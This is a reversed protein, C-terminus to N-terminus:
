IVGGTGISGAVISAVQAPTNSNGIKLPNANSAVLSGVLITNSGSTLSRSISVTVTSSTTPNVLGGFSIFGTPNVGAVASVALIAAAPVLTQSTGDAIDITKGNFIIGSPASITVVSGSRTATFGGTVKSNIKTANNTAATGDMIDAITLAPM